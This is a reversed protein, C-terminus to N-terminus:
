VIRRAEAPDTLEDVTWETAPADQM